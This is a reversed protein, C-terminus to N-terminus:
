APAMSVAIQAANTAPAVPTTVPPSPKYEDRRCASALVPSLFPDLPKFVIECLRAAIPFTVELGLRNQGSISIREDRRGEFKLVPEL